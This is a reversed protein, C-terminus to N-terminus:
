SISKLLGPFLFMCLKWIFYQHTNKKVENRKGGKIINTQM